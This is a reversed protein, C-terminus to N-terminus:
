TNEQLTWFGHAKKGASIARWETMSSDTFIETIFEENKISRSGIMIKEKWWDFEPALCADINMILDYNNNSRQLAHTKQREFEKSYLWSYEIAPCCSIISGTLRAFERIKCNKLKSFRTTLQKMTKRREITLKVTM